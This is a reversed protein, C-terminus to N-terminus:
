LYISLRTGKGLESKLEIEGGYSQVIHKVIALGLGTGSEQKTRGKDVRYFREFVRDVDEPPIGLGTDEVSIEMGNNPRPSFTVFVKGKEKNYKISNELLNKFVQSWQNSNSKKLTAEGQIDLTVGKKDAQFLLKNWEGQCLQRLDCDEEINGQTGEEIESLQLMDDVLDLMNKSEEHVITAYKKIKEKETVQENALLQTFGLISTLPTKFEHSANSVFDMKVKSLQKIDTIDVAWLVAGKAVEPEAWSIEFPKIHLQYVIDSGVELEIKKSVGKEVVSKVGQIVKANSTLYLLHKGLFTEDVNFITKALDNLLAVNCDGDFVVFGSSMTALVYQNKEQEQELEQKEEELQDGVTNIKDLIRNVTSFKETPKAHDYDGEILQELGEDITVFHKLFRNILIRVLWLSILYLVLVTMLLPFGLNLLYTAFPQSQMSVRVVLNKNVEKAYYTEHVGLTTSERNVIKSDGEFAAKIEERNKHNEMNKAIYHSDGLVRGDKQILTVRKYGIKSSLKLAEREYDLDPNKLVEDELHYTLLTTVQILSERNNKEDMNKAVWVFALIACLLAGLVILSFKFGMSKKM